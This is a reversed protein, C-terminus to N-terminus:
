FGFGLFTINQSHNNADKGAQTRLVRPTEKQPATRDTDQPLFAPGSRTTCALPLPSQRMDLGGGQERQIDDTDPWNFM